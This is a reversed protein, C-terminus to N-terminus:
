NIKLKENFEILDKLVKRESEIKANLYVNLSIFENEVQEEM